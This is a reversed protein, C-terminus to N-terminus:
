HCRFPPQRTTAQASRRSGLFLRGLAIQEGVFESTARRAQVLGESLPFELTRLHVLLGTSVENTKSILAQM